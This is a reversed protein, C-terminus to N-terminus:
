PPIELRIYANTSLLEMTSRSKKIRNKQAEQQKTERDKVDVPQAM